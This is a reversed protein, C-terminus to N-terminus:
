GVGSRNPATRVTGPRDRTPDESHGYHRAVAIVDDPLELVANIESRNWNHELLYQEWDAVSVDVGTDHWRLLFSRLKERDSWHSATHASLAWTEMLQDLEARLMEDLTEHEM